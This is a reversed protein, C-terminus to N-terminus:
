TNDVLVKAIGVRNGESFKVGASASSLRCNTVTINECALAPGWVNSSIFIICDDGTEITSNSIRIDKCGDLDIGDAWVAEKLSTYIYVGDIVVRECAYQAISWSSSHLVSLGAIHVDKCRLLWVLFPYLTRRPFDKPFSRIIPRGLSRMLRKHSFGQEHDDERWDYKAQGDVTGRGEITINEIDEGYLLASHNPEKRDFDKVDNSAFLTAGAEIHLRVHSRLYLTGSTYQGPPLHVTGGGAAACADIAKQIAPRADDAKRGTAGYDTVNFVIKGTGYLDSSGPFLILMFVALSLKSLSLPNMLM